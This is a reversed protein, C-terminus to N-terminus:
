SGIDIMLINDTPYVTRALAKNIIYAPQILSGLQFEVTENLNFTDHLEDITHKDTLKYTPLKM